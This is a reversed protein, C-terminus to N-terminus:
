DKQGVYDPSNPFKEQYDIAQKVEALGYFAPFVLVKVVLITVPGPAPSNEIIHFLETREQEDLDTLPKFKKMYILPWAYNLVRVVMRLALRTPLPMRYLMHDTRPLWKDELDAAGPEFSAGGRPIVGSGMAAIIRAEANTLVKYSM